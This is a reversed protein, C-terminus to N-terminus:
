YHPKQSSNGVVPSFLKDYACVFLCIFKKSHNM